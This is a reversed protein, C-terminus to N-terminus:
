IRRLQMAGGKYYVKGNISKIGFSASLDTTLRFMEAKISKSYLDTYKVSFTGKNFISYLTYAEDETIPFLSFEINPRFFPSSYHEVNDLTTVEKKYTIEQIVKYTSLIKSFDHGDIEFVVNM